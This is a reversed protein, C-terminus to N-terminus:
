VKVGALCLEEHLKYLEPAAVGLAQARRLPEGWIPTIELPRGAVYDVMTSPKYPGMPRTQEVQKVVFEDAIAVGEARAISQVERMLAWVRAELVPDQLIRDTTMGARVVGSVVALGNFPINWVLKHWRAALLSGALQTKLGAQTFLEAVASTRDTLGGALEGLAIYGPLTCEAVGPATRNVCVFCLAGVVHAAGSVAAVQEDVGLGNQLNVVVTEPGLLPPLLLPLAENATAKLGIIVLDVPGIEAPKAAVRVPHLTYREGPYSVTVGNARIVDLDARALFVVDHGSRALRGGYYLGLAGSGVVAIRPHVPFM